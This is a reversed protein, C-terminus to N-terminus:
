LGPVPEGSSFVVALPPCGAATRVSQMRSFNEKREADIDAPLLVGPKFCLIIARLAPFFEPTHLVRWASQLCSYEVRIIELCPLYPSFALWDPFALGDDSNYNAELSMLTATYLPLTSFVHSIRITRDWYVQSSRREFTLDLVNQLNRDMSRLLVMINFGYGEGTMSLVLHSVPNQAVNMHPQELFHRARSIIPWCIRGDDGFFHCAVSLSKLSPTTIAKLLAECEQVHGDLSIEELEALNIPSISSDAPFTSRPPMCRVLALARLAPSNRLISLAECASPLKNDLETGDFDPESITYSPHMPHENLRPHELSVGSPASRSIRKALDSARNLQFDSIAPPHTETLCELITQDSAGLFSRHGFKVSFRDLNRILPSQWPLYVSSLIIQRLNPASGSFLSAPLIVPDREVSEWGLSSLVLEQLLPAPEDLVNCLEELQSPELFLSIHHIASMRWQFLSNVLAFQWSSSNPQHGGHRVSIPANKARVLMEKAWKESLLFSPTSWLRPTTLTVERWHSCVHSSAAIWGLAGRTPPSFVVLFRFIIALVEVPLNNILVLANIRKRARLVALELDELEAEAARRKRTLHEVDLQSM